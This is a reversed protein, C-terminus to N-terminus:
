RVLSQYRYLSDRLALLAGVEPAGGALNRVAAAEMALALPALGTRAAPAAGAVAAAPEGGAFVAELAELLCIAEDADLAAKVELDRCLADVREKADM